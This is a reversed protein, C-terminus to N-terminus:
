RGSSPKRYRRAISGGRHNSEEHCEGDRKFGTGDAHRFSPLVAFNTRTACSQTPLVLHHLSFIPCIGVLHAFELQESLNHAPTAFTSRNKDCGLSCFVANLFERVGYDRLSTDRTRPSKLNRRLRRIPIGDKSRGM